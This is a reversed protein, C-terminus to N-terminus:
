SNLARNQTEKWGSISGMQGFRCFSCSRSRFLCLASVSVLSLAQLMQRVESVFPKHCKDWDSKARQKRPSIELGDHPSPVRAIKVSMTAMIEAWHGGPHGRIITPSKGSPKKVAHFRPWLFQAATFNAALGPCTGSLVVWIDGGVRISQSYTSLVVRKAVSCVFHYSIEAIKDFTFLRFLLM